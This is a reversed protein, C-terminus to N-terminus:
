AGEADAGDDAGAGPAADDADVAAVVEDVARADGLRLVGHPEFAVAPVDLVVADVGVDFDDVGGLVPGVGAVGLEVLGDGQGEAGQGCGGWVGWGRQRLCGADTPAAGGLGASPTPADPSRGM